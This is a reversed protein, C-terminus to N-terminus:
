RADADVLRNVLEDLNGTKPLHRQALMESLQAKKLGQYPARANVHAIKALRREDAKAQRAADKEGKAVADAELAAVQQAEDAGAAAVKAAKEAQAVAVHKIGEAQQRAAEAVKAVQDSVADVTQEIQASVVDAAKEAKTTVVKAAQQAREVVDQGAAAAQEGVVGTLSGMIETWKAAFLLNAEVTRQVFELYKAASGVADRAQNTFENDRETSEM